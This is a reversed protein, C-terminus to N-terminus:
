DGIMMASPRNPGIAMSRVIELVGGHPMLAEIAGIQADSFCHPLILHAAPAAWLDLNDVSLHGVRPNTDRLNVKRLIANGHLATLLRSVAPGTLENFAISVSELRPGVLRDLDTSHKLMNRELELERLQPLAGIERALYGMTNDTISCHNLKLVTLNEARQLFRTHEVAMDRPFTIQLCLTTLTDPLPTTLFAGITAGEDHESLFMGSRLPAVAFASPNRYVLELSANNEEATTAICRLIQQSDLPPVDGTVFPQFVMGYPERRPVEEEIAALAGVTTDMPVTIENFRPPDEINVSENMLSALVDAQLQLVEVDVTPPLAPAVYRGGMSEVLARSIHCNDEQEALMRREYPTSMGPLPLLFSMNHEGYRTYDEMLKPDERLFAETRHKVMVLDLETLPSRAILISLSHMQRPTRQYNVAGSFRRMNKFLDPCSPLDPTLPEYANLMIISPVHMGRVEIDLADSAVIVRQITSMPTQATISFEVRLPDCRSADLILASLTEDDNPPHHRFQLM